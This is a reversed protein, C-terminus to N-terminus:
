PNYPIPPNCKRTIDKVRVPIIHPNCIPNNTGIWVFRSEDNPYQIELAPSSNLIVGMENQVGHRYCNIRSIRRRIETQLRLRENRSGTSILTKFEEIGTSVAKARSERTKLEKAVEKLREEANELDAAIKAAREHAARALAPPQDGTTFRDLIRNIAERKQAAEISLSAAKAQLREKEPDGKPNILGQWDLEHLYKLVSKEFHSYPWSQPTAEPDFREIDGRLFSHKARCTFRMKYGTYGCYVLGSFLNGIKLSRPGRPASPRSKAAQWEAPTIAAPFYDLIPEGDPVYKGTEPDRRRPQFTGLVTPNFLLKWVHSDYWSKGGWTPIGEKNLTKTITRKGMGDAALHFIRRVIAAREPIIEYCTKTKRLWGPCNKSLPTGNERAKRRKKAWASGIRESKTASEEHARMMIVISMMLSGPNQNITERNYVMKDMLTVVTIGSNIINLFQTLASTIQDRSLRDLSEVLLTSGPTVQGTQIAEFFGALAGEAANKGRFASVGLDQLHLSRDITLGHDQAYEESATTQRSKSDGKAQEASSFRIYSYAIGTAEPQQTTNPITEM